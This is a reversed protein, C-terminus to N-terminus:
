KVLGGNEGLIGSTVLCTIMIKEFPLRLNKLQQLYVSQNGGRILSRSRLPIPIWVIQNTQISKLWLTSIDTSTFQFTTNRLIFCISSTMYVSQYLLYGILSCYTWNTKNLTCFMPKLRRKAWNRVAFLDSISDLVNLFLAM